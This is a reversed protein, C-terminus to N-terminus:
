FISQPFDSVDSELHPAIVRPTKPLSFHGFYHLLVFKNRDVNLHLINTAHGVSIRLTHNGDPCAFAMETGGSPGSMAMVEVIKKGDLYLKLPLTDQSEGAADHSDQRLLNIAIRFYHPSPMSIPSSNCAALLPLVALLSPLRAIHM